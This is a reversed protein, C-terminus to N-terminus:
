SFRHENQDAALYQIACVEHIGISLTDIGLILIYIQLKCWWHIYVSIRQIEKFIVRIAMFSKVNKRFRTEKIRTNRCDMSRYMFYSGAVRTTMQRKSRDKSRWSTPYWQVPFRPLHIRLMELMESFLKEQLFARSNGTLRNSAFQVDELCELSPYQHTLNSLIQISIVEVLLWWKSYLLFPSSHSCEFFHHQMWFKMPKLLQIRALIMWSNREFM